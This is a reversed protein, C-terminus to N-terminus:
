GGGRIADPTGRVEVELGGSATDRRLRHLILDSMEDGGDLVGEGPLCEVGLHLAEKEEKSSVESLFSLRLSQSDAEGGGCILAILWLELISGRRGNKSLPIFDARRTYVLDDRIGGEM